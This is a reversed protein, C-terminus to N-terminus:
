DALLGGVTGIAAAIVDLRNVTRQILAPGPRLAIARRCPGEASPAAGLVRIQM